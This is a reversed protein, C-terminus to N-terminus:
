CQTWNKIGMTQGSENRVEETNYDKTDWSSDDYHRAKHIAQVEDLAEIELTLTKTVIYRM